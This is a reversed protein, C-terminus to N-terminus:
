YCLKDRARDRAEALNPMSNLQIENFTYGGMEHLVYARREATSMKFIKDWKDDAWSENCHVCRFTPWNTGQVVFLNTECNPCEPYFHEINLPM